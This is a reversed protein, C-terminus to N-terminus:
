TDGEKIATRNDTTGVEIKATIIHHASHTERLGSKVSKDRLQPDPPAHRTTPDILDAPHIIVTIKAQTPHIPIPFQLTGTRTSVEMEVITYNSQSGFNNHNRHNMTSNFRPQFIGNVDDFILKM